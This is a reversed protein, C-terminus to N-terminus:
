STSSSWGASLEHSILDTAPREQLRHMGERITQQGYVPTKEASRSLNGEEIM